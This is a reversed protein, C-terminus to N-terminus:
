KGFGPIQLIDVGILKLLFVSLIILLLGSLASTILESGAQTKKPDGASTIIQFAGFAMLLFAIGSAIFIFKGLLWGVFENLNSAPICGIATSIGDAKTGTGPDCHPDNPDAVCLGTCIFPVSPNPSFCQCKKLEPCPNKTIDEKCGAEVTFQCGCEGFGLGFVKSPSKLFFLTTLFFLIFYVQKNKM